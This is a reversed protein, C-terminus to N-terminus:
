FRFPSFLRCVSRSRAREGEKATSETAQRCVNLNSAQKGQSGHLKHLKADSGFLESVFLVLLIQKRRSGTAEEPRTAVTSKAQRCTGDNTQKVAARVRQSLCKRDQEDALRMPVHPLPLSSFLLLVFPLFSPTRVSSLRTSSFSVSLSSLSGSGRIKCDQRVNKKSHTKRAFLLYAFSTTKTAITLSSSTKQRKVKSPEVFNLIWFCTRGVGEGSDEDEDRDLRERERERENTTECRVKSNTEWEKHEVKVEPKATLRFLKMRQFIESCFATVSQVATSFANFTLM